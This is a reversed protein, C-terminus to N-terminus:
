PNPLALRYRSLPAADTLLPGAPCCTHPPEGGGHPLKRGRVQRLVDATRLLLRALDGEDISSDRVVQDWAVGSAWAEVLGALRTDV